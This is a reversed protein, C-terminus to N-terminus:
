DKDSAPQEGVADPQADNQASEALNPALELSARSHVEQTIQDIGEAEDVPTRKECVYQNGYDEVAVVRMAGGGAKLRVWDDVKFNIRETSQEAQKQGEEPDTTVPYFEEPTYRYEGLGAMLAQRIAGRM